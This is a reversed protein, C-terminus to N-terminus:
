ARTAGPSSRPRPTARQTDTESVVPRGPDAGAPEDVNERIGADRWGSRYAGPAADDALLELTALIAAREEPTPDPRIEPEMPQLRSSGRM